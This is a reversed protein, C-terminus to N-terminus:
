KKKENRFDTNFKIAIENIAFNAKATSNALRTMSILMVQSFLDVIEGQLKNSIKKAKM